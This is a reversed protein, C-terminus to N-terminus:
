EECELNYKEIVQLIQRIQYPKAENGVKQVNIIEAVDDHVYIHHSGSVRALKFGYTELLLKVESFKTNQLNGSNFRLLLKRIKVM